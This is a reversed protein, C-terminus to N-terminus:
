DLLRGMTTWKSVMGCGQRTAIAIKNDVEIPSGFKLASERGKAITGLVSERSSVEIILFILSGNNLYWNFIEFNWLLLM